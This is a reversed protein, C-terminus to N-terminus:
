FFQEGSLKNIIVKETKEENFLTFSDDELLYEYSEFYDFPIDRLEEGMNIDLALILPGEKFTYYEKQFLHHRGTGM